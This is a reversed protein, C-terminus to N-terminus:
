FLGSRGVWSTSEVLVRSLSKLPTCKRHTQYSITVRLCHVNLLTRASTHLFLWENAFAWILSYFVSDSGGDAEKKTISTVGTGRWSVHKGQIRPPKSDTLKLTHSGKSCACFSLQNAYGLLDSNTTVSRSPLSALNRRPENSRFACQLAVSGVTLNCTTDELVLVRLRSVKCIYTHNTCTWVSSTRLIARYGYYKPRIRHLVSRNNDYTERTLIRM